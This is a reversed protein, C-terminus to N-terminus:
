LAMGSSIEAAACETGSQIKQFVSFRLKGEVPCGFFESGQEQGASFGVRQDKHVGRERLFAFLGTGHKSEDAKSQAIKECCFLVAFKEEEGFERGIGAADGDATQELKGFGHHLRFVVDCCVTRLLRHQGRQYAAASVSNEM